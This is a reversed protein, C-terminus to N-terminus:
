SLTLVAVAGPRIAWSVHRIAKLAILDSQYLNVVQSGSPADDMDVSGGEAVDLEAGDDCYTIADADFAILSNGAGPSALMPVVDNLGPVAALARTLRAHSGVLYPRTAAGGSVAALLAGIDAALNATPTISTAGYAISPPKENPVGANGSALFAADIAKALASSMGRQIYNLAIPGGFRALDKSMAIIAGVKLPDLSLAAASWASAPIPAFQGVWHAVPEGTLMAGGTNVPVRRGGVKGIVTQRDVLGVFATALPRVAGYESETFMADVTSKVHAAPAGLALATKAIDRTQSHLGKGIALALFAGARETQEYTQVLDHATKMM